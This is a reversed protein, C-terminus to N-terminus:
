YSPLLTKSLNHDVVGRVSDIGFWFGILRLIGGSARGFMVDVVYSVRFSLM